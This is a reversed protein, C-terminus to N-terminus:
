VRRNALRACLWVAAVAGVAAAGVAARHGPRFSVRDRLRVRNRFTLVEWAQERALRSLDRDPNVAVPHGVCGLMPADTVSDSYAYSRGLDIDHRDALSRIAEAKNPGYCYFGTKGTYRGAEDIQTQTALYGDVDLYSALPAVIEEPSASVIYTRRGEARHRRLLDLAEAFVIPEVVEALTDRVVARVESADWGKTLALVDERMREMRAEDAGLYLYVLQSYVARLLLRRSIFGRHYLPKGFAVMAARDIVTKDLDFFAAEIM